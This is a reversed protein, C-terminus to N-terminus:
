TISALFTHKELSHQCKYSMSFLFVEIYLNIRMHNWSTRWYNFVFPCNTKMESFAQLKGRTVAAAPSRTRTQSAYGCRQEKVVYRRLQLSVTQWCPLVTKKLCLCKQSLFFSLIIAYWYYIFRMYFRLISSDCLTCPFFFVPKVYTSESLRSVTFNSDVLGALLYSILSATLQMVSSDLSSEKSRFLYAELFPITWVSDFAAQIVLWCYHDRRYKICWAQIVDHTFSIFVLITSHAHSVDGKHM